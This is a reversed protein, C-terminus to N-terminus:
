LLSVNSADKVKLATIIKLPCIILDCCLCQASYILILTTNSATHSHVSYTSIQCQCRCHPVHSLCSLGLKRGQLPHHHEINRHTLFQRNIVIIIIINTVLIILQTHICQLITLWWAHDPWLEVWEPVLRQHHGGEAASMENFQIELYCHVASDQCKHCQLWTTHHDPVLSILCQQNSEHGNQKWTTVRPLNNVSMHRQWWATYLYPVIKM